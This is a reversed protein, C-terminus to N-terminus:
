RRPEMAVDFSFGGAPDITVAKGTLVGYRGDNSVTISGSQGALAPTATTDIAVSEKALLIVPISGLLAGADNWFHAEIVVGEPSTNQLVLVTGQTGTNNFRPISYTTDYSRIRYRHSGCPTGCSVRSVRLPQNTILGEPSASAANRWRLSRSWTLGAAPVAGPGVPTLSPGSYRGIDFYGPGATTADTLVEYSSYPKQGIRYWHVNPPGGTLEREIAVGHLLETSSLAPPDNDEIVGIATGVDITAHGPDFLTVSFNEEPEAISDGVIPVYLRQLETSFPPFVLSGTTVYFDQWPQATGKSTHYNVHGPAESLNGAMTVHFPAPTTGEDGEPVAVFGFGISLRPPADNDLITGFALPAGTANVANSLQVSFSQAADEHVLDGNVPVTISASTAPPTFTVTGSSAVFDPYAGTSVATGDVTTFNVTAPGCTPQSLTLPFIAASTGSNGETVSAANVMSVTALDNDQITVEASTPPSLVGPAASLALGFTEACEVTGDELIPVAIPRISNNTSGVPFNLTGSVATYDSGPTATQGAGTATAFGFSIVHSTVADANTMVLRADITVSGHGEGVSAASSTLQVTGDDDRITVVHSSPTGLITGSSPTLSATFTENSEALTDNVISFPVNAVSGDAAGAAFTLAGAALTYDAASASGDVASYAVTAPEATPCGDWTTLRVPLLGATDKEWPSSAGAVFAVAPKAEFDLDAILRSGAYVYDRVKRPMGDCRVFESLIQGGPGHIWYRTRGAALALKRMQDGDYRYTTTAGDVTATQMMNEVTYTYTRGLQSTLNGNALYGFSAEAEAGTASTLRNTVNNYHYDTFAGGITKDERDGHANYNFAGSGWPGAATWLRDVGDYTFSQNMEARSTEDITRVNGVNDYGYDLRLLTNGGANVIDPRQRLDYTFSHTRGNGALYSWPAGSPHYSVFDAFTTSGSYVLDIRNGFDHSYNVRRPSPAPYDIWDLNDNEDYHFGTVFTSGGVVDTRSTLRNVGDYGFTSNVFGNVLTRRNDSEDYTMSVDYDSGDRDVNRLRENNDYFYTAVGFEADDRTLLNGAPYYSYDVRGSEPQIEYDLQNKANYHWIRTPGSDPPSVQTLSGVANYSYSWTKGHADTVASLRADSPNGFASWNQHSVRNEEDRIDVDVGSAYEYTASTADGNTRLRLRGLADFVSTVGVNPVTPSSSDSYPYSEYTKRGCADYGIATQVGMRNLTAVPRGFGDLGTQTWSDGRFVTMSTDFDSDDYSTVVNNGLPPDVLYRRFRSDYFFNTTFGRRKEWAVTGSSNIAREVTLGPYEPTTTDKLVGWDYTFSTTHGNANTVSAVNGRTTPGFTTSVGYITESQKFGTSDMYAYSKTFSEGDVNIQESALKGRIYPAFSYDYTLTTTRSLEGTETITWPQGYDNFSTARYDLDTVYSGGVRSVTKRDILPVRIETDQNSGILEDDISIAAGVQWVLEEVELTVGGEITTRFLPTGICWACGPTTDQGIGRFSQRTTGCPGFIESENQATGQAYSYTWNGNSALGTTNRTGVVRSPINVTTGLRFFQTRYTYIVGGGHPTTMSTLEYRPQNPPPNTNYGYQWSAGLPPAVDSLLSFGAANTDTQTYTWTSSGFSMTRLTKRTADATFTVTRTQGGLDQVISAIGDPPNSTGTMYNVTIVNGYADEIQTAYRYIQGSPLTIRAGFTYKVGNPLRLLHINKNYIWFDRTVFCGGAGPDGACPSTDIAHYLRHQSGDPMEIPPPVDSFPPDPIRGMHLTWGVGAWTDEDLTGGNTGFNRFIKSNYTRQIRLDFGANGPLSLDAFTLILSGTMPDIHEYPLQSFPARNPDFGRADFVEWPEVALAGAAGSIFAGVAVAAGCVMRVPISLKV